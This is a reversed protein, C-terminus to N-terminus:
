EGVRGSRGSPTGGGGPGAWGVAWGGGARGAGRPASTADSSTAASAPAPTEAATSNSWWLPPAPSPVGPPVAVVGAVPVVPVGGKGVGAVGEGPRVLRGPVPACM